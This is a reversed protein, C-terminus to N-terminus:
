ETDQPESDGLVGYKGGCEAQLDQSFSLFKLEKIKISWQDKNMTVLM